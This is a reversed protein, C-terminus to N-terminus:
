RTARGPGPASSSWARAARSTRSRLLDPHLRAPRLRQLAQQRPGHATMRSAPSTWASGREPRRSRLLRRRRTRGAPADRPHLVHLLVLRRAWASSSGQRRDRRTVHTRELEEGMPGVGRRAGAHHLELIHPSLSLGGYAACAAMLVALVRRVRAAPLRARAGSAYTRAVEAGLLVDGRRRARDSRLPRLGRGDRRGLLARADDPLRLAGRLRRARGHRGGVRRRRARRRRRRRPRGARPALGPAGRRVPELDSASFRDESM